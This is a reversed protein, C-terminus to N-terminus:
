AEAKAIAKHLAHESNGINVSVARWNVPSVSDIMDRLQRTNILVEKLTEVVEDRVKAAETAWTAEQSATQLANAIDHKLDEIDKTQGLNEEAMGLLSIILEHSNELHGNLGTSSALKLGVTRHIEKITDIQEQNLKGVDNSM